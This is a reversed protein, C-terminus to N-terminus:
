QVTVNANYKGIAWVSKDFSTIKVPMSYQGSPPTQGATYIVTATLSEPLLNQIKQSPGMVTVIIKQTTVAINYSSLSSDVLIATIELQRSEVGSIETEVTVTDTGDIVTVGAPFNLDILRVSSESIESMSVTDVTYTDPVSDIVDKAASVTISSPTVTRKVYDTLNYDSGDSVATVLNVTKTYNLTTTVVTESVSLTLASTDVENGDKDILSIPLSQTTEDFSSIIVRAAVIKDLISQEGSIHVSPAAISVDSLVRGEPIETSVAYGVEIEKEDIRALRVSVTQPSFNEINVGSVNSALTVDISLTYVGPSSIASYRPLATFDSATLTSIALKPGSVQVSVTQDSGEVVSLGLANLVSSDSIQVPIGSIYRTDSPNIITGVFFWIVVAAVVSFWFLSHNSLKKKKRTKVM